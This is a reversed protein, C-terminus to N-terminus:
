GAKVFREGAALAGCGLHAQLIQHVEKSKALEFFANATASMPERRPIAIAVSRSKGTRPLPIAELETSGSVMLTVPRPLVSAWKGTRVQDMVLWITNTTIHPTKALIAQLIESEWSGFIPSDPSLLCLPLQTLNEWSVPKWASFSSGRRFVLQYQETYLIHTRCHRRLGQDLHTIAIDLASSEFGQHIDFPSRVLVNLNAHPFRDRFPLIFTKLLPVASGLVGIRLTGSLDDHQRKLEQRLRDRESAMRHAAQIVLEGQTTLGQFRRGRKVLQVGLEAELQQIAASLTPQSVHCVAAARAFHAEKALAMLYELKRSLVVETLIREPSRYPSDAADIDRM